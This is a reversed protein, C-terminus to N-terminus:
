ITVQLFIAILIKINEFLNKSGKIVTQLRDCNTIPLPALKIKRRRQSFM